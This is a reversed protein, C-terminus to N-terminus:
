GRLYCARSWPSLCGRTGGRGWWVWGGSYGRRGCLALFCMWMRQSSPFWSEWIRMGYHCNVLSLRVLLSLILPLSHLCYCLLLDQACPAARTDVFLLSPSNFFRGFKSDLLFRGFKCCCCKTSLPLGSSTRLICLTSSAPVLSAWSSALSWLTSSFEITRVVVCWSGWCLESGADQLSSHIGRCSLPVEPPFM